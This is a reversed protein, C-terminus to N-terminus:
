GQASRAPTARRVNIGLAANAAAWQEWTPSPARRVHYELWEERSMPRAAVGDNM